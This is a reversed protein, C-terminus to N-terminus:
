RRGRTRDRMRQLEWKLDRIYKDRRELEKGKEDLSLQLEKTERKAKKLEEQRFIIEGDKHRNQAFLHKTKKKYAKIEEGQLEEKSKARPPNALGIVLILGLTGTIIDNIMGSLTM